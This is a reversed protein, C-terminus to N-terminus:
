GFYTLEEEDLFGLREVTSTSYGMSMLLPKIVQEVLDTITTDPSFEYGFERLINFESTEQTVSIKTM